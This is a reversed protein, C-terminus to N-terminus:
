SCWFSIHRFFLGKVFLGKVHGLFPHELFLFPVELDDMKPYPKGHNEGDM